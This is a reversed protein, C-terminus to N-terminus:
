SRQHQPHAADVPTDKDTQGACIHRNGHRRRARVGHRQEGRCEDDAVIAINYRKGDKETIVTHNAPAIWAGDAPQQKSLDVGLANGTADATGDQGEPWKLM